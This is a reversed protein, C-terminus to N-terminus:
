KMETMDLYAEVIWLIKEDLINGVEIREHLLQSSEIEHWRKTMGYLITREDRSLITDIENM